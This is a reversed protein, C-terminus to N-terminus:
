FECSFVQSLTQRLGAVKNFFFSQCLHQGTFKSFNKRVGKKSFVELFSSRFIIHLLHLILKKTKDPPKHEEYSQFDQFILFNSKKHLM